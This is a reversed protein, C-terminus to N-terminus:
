ILGVAADVKLYRLLQVGEAAVGVETRVKVARGVEARGAAASEAAAVEGPGIGCLVLTDGCASVVDDGGVPEGVEAEAPETDVDVLLSRVVVLRFSGGEANGIDVLSVEREVAAQGLEVDVAHGLVSGGGVLKELGLALE